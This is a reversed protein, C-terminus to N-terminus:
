ATDQGERVPQQVVPDQVQDEHEQNHPVVAGEGDPLCGEGGRTWVSDVHVHLGRIGSKHLYYFRCVGGGNFFFFDAM